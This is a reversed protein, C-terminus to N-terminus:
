ALRPAARHRARLAGGVGGLGLIMLAWTSPEPVGADPTDVFSGIVFQSGDDGHAVFSGLGRKGNSFDVYATSGILENGHNSLNPLHDVDIVWSFSEGVQFDNFTFALSSGGDTFNAPGTYGTTVDTGALPAFPTVVGGDGNGTTGMETDFVWPAVLTMGFGLITEGGTSANTMTFGPLTVGDMIFTLNGTALAPGAAGLALTAMAALLKLKM